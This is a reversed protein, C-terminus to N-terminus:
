FMVGVLLGNIDKCIVILLLVGRFKLIGILWGILNGIVSGCLLRFMNFNEVGVVGFLSVM